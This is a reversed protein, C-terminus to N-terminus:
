TSPAAAHGAVTAEMAAILAETGPITVLVHYGHPTPHLVQLDGVFFQDLLRVPLRQHQHMDQARLAALALETGSLPVDCELIADHVGLHIMVQPPDFRERDIVVPVVAPVSRAASTM